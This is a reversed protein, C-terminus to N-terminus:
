SIQLTVNKTDTLPRDNITAWSTQSKRFIIQRELYAWQPSAALIKENRKSGFDNCNMFRILAGSM